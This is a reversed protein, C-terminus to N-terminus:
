VLGERVSKVAAEVRSRVGLKAFVEALHKEVTKEHIALAVSIERNTKGDVLLRLVETERGTLNDLPGGEGRLWAAVRAMVLPSYWEGGRAALRVAQAVMEVAEHKLVYGSVGAAILGRVYADHGYATLAIVKLRPLRRRLEAVTEVPPPGPMHLDLLLIDPDLELALRRAEWADSAEGALAIDAHAGLIARLGARVVAHDDAILVRIPEPM